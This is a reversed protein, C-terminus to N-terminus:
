RYDGIAAFPNITQLRGHLCEVKRKVSKDFMSTMVDAVEEDQLAEVLLRKREGLQM